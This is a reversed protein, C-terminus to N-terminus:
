KSKEILFEVNEPSIRYETLWQPKRSLVVPINLTKNQVLTNYDVSIEVDSETVRNYRSLGVQIVLEVTSPFFRVIRDDPLNHCIVPIELTKETYEEVRATLLVSKEELRINKPAKLDVKEDLTKRINKIEKEETYIAQITDLDDRSGYAWVEPPDIRVSDLFMYGTAPTVEGTIVVPIKKKQLPSYDIQIKEPTFFLLQTTISLHQLIQKELVTKTITFSREKEKLGSLSIELPGPQKGLSYNLLVTGKDRVRLLIRDPLSDATIMEAPTDEYRVPIYVEQEFTQQLYQLLWFGFAILLFFLFVFAKKWNEGQFFAKTKKQLSSPTSNIPLFTM